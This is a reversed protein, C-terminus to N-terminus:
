GRIFHDVARIGATLADATEQFTQGHCGDLFLEFGAPDLISIGVQEGLDIPILLCYRYVIAENWRRLCFREKYRDLFKLDDLLDTLIQM